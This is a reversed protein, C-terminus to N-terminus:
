DRPEVGMEELVRPAPDVQEMVWLIYRIDAHITRTLEPNFVWNSAVSEWNMDFVLGVLRGQADLTPSGSNGGTVDLDTLFNVPVTGLSELERGGYRRAAIADLEAQPADFPAEGTAKEAIEELRTFPEYTTGRKPSYGKVNGFTIRLSSNADPYVARGNARNTDIVAQLFLPRDRMDEGERAEAAAERELVYPLLANALVIASDESAALAARDAAFWRLRAETEGLRTGAYLADLAKEVDAEDDGGLWADIAPVRQKEPLDIYRGLWYALLQRDVSADYRREMQELAGKIAAQDREQYGPAREADSKAREEAARVLRNATSVLGTNLLGRVIFDRERTAREEANAAQLRAYADLAPRGAEGQKRLWALVAREEKRKTDGADAREFGELQGTMNKLYNNLGKAQAAYKVGAEPDAKGAADIIALQAEYAEIAQPYAWDRTDAFEEALAYRYTRGPYGAVMAFDGVDVGEESVELWHKPRYPVNDKAYAVPRGDPAVYGRIFTFDGTHRPWMWNDIDGGFVGIGGHPAYVIRVDKIELQRFLRYQLGGFFSYVTCRYGGGQECEAVLRKELAETAAQRAAGDAAQAQAARIRETVDTIQETVYIRANPGASIEDGLTAANFGTVTLDKEATSNLQLGGYACHHNTVVLGQPSVFSATCGGLSVIAGMPDGTLDALQQPDLELGAEELPGAIEPLQQPVWMGEVAHAGGGAALALAAGLALHLPNPRM